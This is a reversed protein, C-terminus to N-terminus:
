PWRNRASFTSRRTWWGMQVLLANASGSFPDFLTVWTFAVAIVPAVYPFLYLGRLIGQGRFSKNLLLAAFLGMVLAGITGFITYFLTVYLAQWFAKGDFVRAFNELTFDFNTLINEATGTVMPPSAKIDPVPLAEITVPIRIRERQGGELDGFDCFIERGERRALPGASRPPKAYDQAMHDAGRFLGASGRLPQKRFIPPGARAMRNM